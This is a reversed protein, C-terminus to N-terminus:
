EDNGSNVKRNKRIEKIEQVIQQAFVIDLEPYHGEKIVDLCKHIM